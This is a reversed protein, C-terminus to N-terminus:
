FYAGWKGLCLVLLQIQPTRNKGRGKTRHGVIRRFNYTGDDNQTADEVFDYISQYDLMEEFMKEGVKVKFRM